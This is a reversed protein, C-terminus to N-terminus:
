NRKHRSRRREDFPQKHPWTEETAGDNRQTGNRSKNKRCMKCGGSHFAAFYPAGRFSPEKPRPSYKEYCPSMLKEAAVVEAMGNDCDDLIRKRRETPISKM